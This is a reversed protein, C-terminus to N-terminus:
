YLFPVLARTRARYAPYGPFRQTLWAEERRRKLDLVLALAISAVIAPLSARSISSGAAILILAAYIPHRMFRYPGTEVLSGDDTPYPVATLSRARNLVFVAWLTLLLGVIAIPAGIAGAVAYGGSADPGPVFVCGAAVLGLCALQLVVWGEGRPGLSPIRTGAAAAGIM